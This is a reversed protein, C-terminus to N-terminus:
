TSTFYLYYTVGLLCLSNLLYNHINIIGANLIKPYVRPVRSSMSSFVESRPIKAERAVDDGTITENGQQGVFTVRTGVPYERDLALMLQDMSIRGVIQMRKGDVLVGTRRFDQHWGDGYGIPVTGIWQTENTTYDDGYGIKEGADVQKVLSLQSHISISTELPVPLLHKLPENPPGTLAKGCRVMDFFPKEDQYVTAGSNACHVVKETRNPIIELFEHFRALQRRYYTRNNVDESTAFHTFVGTFRLNRHGATLEIVKRVDELTKCGLRNMGTDVKLHFDIPQQVISLAEKIWELSIATVTVDSNSAVSLHETPVYGLVLIPINKLFERRLVLAEDLTAVGLWTAGSSLSIRAIEMMGYGYANAKVVAMLHVKEGIHNKLLRVNSQVNTLNVEIWTPRIYPPLDRFSILM